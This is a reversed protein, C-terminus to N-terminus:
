TNKKELYDNQFILYYLALLHSTSKKAYVTNNYITKVKYKSSNKGANSEIANIKNVQKKQYHWVGAIM